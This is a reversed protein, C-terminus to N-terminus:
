APVLRVGYEVVGTLHSPEVVGSNPAGFRDQSALANAGIAYPTVLAAGNYDVSGPDIGFLTQLDLGAAILPSDTAPILGLVSRSVNPDTATPSATDDVFLSDAVIGVPSSAVVEQGAVAARWAALSTYTASWRVDVAGAKDYANGQFLVKTTNYATNAQLIPGTGLQVFANNRFTVGTPTVGGHTGAAVCAPHSAGSDRAVITNGYFDCSGMQSGFLHVEGLTSGNHCNGWTLNFRIVNGSSGTPTPEADGPAAYLLGPGDNDYALCYEIRCNLANYDLDFGNGDANNTRNGHSICRTVVVDACNYIGIGSPGAATVSNQGNGSARSLEVLGTEVNGLIIGTGTVAIADAANGLADDATCRRVTVNANAYPTSGSFNPGYTTIGGKWNDHSDCDEILVDVWGDTDGGLIIGHNFGSVDCRRITVAETM